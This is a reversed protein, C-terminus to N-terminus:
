KNLAEKNEKLSTKYNQIYLDEIEKTLYIGLKEKDNQM